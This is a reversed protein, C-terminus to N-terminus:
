ASENDNGETESKQPTGPDAQQQAPPDVPAPQTPIPTPDAPTPEASKGGAQGAPLHLQALINKLQDPVPLGIATANELLSIGENALYFFIVATRLMDSGGELMYLDALHGIGVVVFIAVKKAIGRAGIRSSINKEVVARLLGTIYDAAVFAILAYLFSGAPSGDDLGGLYWGLLAGLGTFATHAWNWITKLM